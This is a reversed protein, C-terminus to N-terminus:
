TIVPWPLPWCRIAPRLTRSFQSLVHFIPTYYIQKTIRDIMIPAGCYNGVPNPGDQSDLAPNWDIWGSVWHNLSGIINRAYRHAPTYMPYDEAHEAWATYAWDPARKQWWFDDNNFWNSEETVLDPTLPIIHVRLAATIAATTTRASSAM